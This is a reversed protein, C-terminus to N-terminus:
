VSKLQVEVVEELAYFIIANQGDLRLRFYNTKNVNINKFSIPSLQSLVSLVAQLDSQLSLRVFMTVVQAGSPALFISKM